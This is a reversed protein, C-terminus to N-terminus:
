VGFCFCSLVMHQEVAIRHYKLFHQIVKATHVPANDQQFKANGISQNIHDIVPPLLLKLLRCYILANVSQVVLPVFTGRHNEWFYRWVM